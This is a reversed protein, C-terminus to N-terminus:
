PPCTVGDTIIFFDIDSQESAERRAFSGVTVICLSSSSIERELRVRIKEILEQSYKKAQNIGTLEHM